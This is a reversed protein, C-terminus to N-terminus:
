PVRREGRTEVFCPIQLIQQLFIHAKAVFQSRLKEANELNYLHAGTQPMCTQRTGPVGSGEPSFLHTIQSIKRHKCNQTKYCNKECNRGRLSLNTDSNADTESVGAIVRVTWWITEIAIVIVSRISASRVTVIPGIPKDAANEDAGAWPEVAVIAAPEVATRAVPSTATVPAMLSEAATKRLASKRFMASKIAAVAEVPGTPSAAAVASEFVTM